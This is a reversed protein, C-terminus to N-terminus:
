LSFYSARGHPWQIMRPPVRDTTLGADCEAKPDKRMLAKHGTLSLWLLAAQFVATKKSDETRTTM